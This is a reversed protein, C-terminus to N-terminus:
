QSTARAAYQLLKTSQVKLASLLHSSEVDLQGWDYKPRSIDSLNAVWGGLEVYVCFGLFNDM